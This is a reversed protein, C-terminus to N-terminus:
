YFVYPYLSLAYHYINVHIGAIVYRTGVFTPKAHALSTSVIQYTVSCTYLVVVCLQFSHKGNCHFNQRTGLSDIYAYLDTYYHLHPASITIWYLINREFGLVLPRTEGNGACCCAFPLVLNRERVLNSKGEKPKQSIPDRAKSIPFFPPRPDPTLTLRAWHSPTPHRRPLSSSIFSAFPPKVFLLSIEM